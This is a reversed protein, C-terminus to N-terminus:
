KKKRLIRSVSYGKKRRRLRVVRCILRRKRLEKELRKKSMKQDKGLVIVDPDEKEVVKMFDTDDGIVVRDAVGTKELAKKRKEASFLPYTKTLVATRDSAVVVVLKDGRKKAEKLFFLHGAHVINFVGGVLVKTM